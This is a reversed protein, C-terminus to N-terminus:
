KFRFKFGAAWGGKIGDEEKDIVRGKDIFNM